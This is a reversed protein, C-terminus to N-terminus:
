PISDINIISTTTTTLYITSTPTAAFCTQTATV